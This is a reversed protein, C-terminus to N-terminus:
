PLAKESCLRNHLSWGFTNILGEHGRLLMWPFPRVSFSQFLSRRVRWRRSDWLLAITSWRSGSVSALWWDGCRALNVGLSGFLGGICTAWARSVPGTHLLVVKDREFKGDKSATEVDHGPVEAWSLRSAGRPLEAPSDPSDGTLVDWMGHARDVLLKLSKARNMSLILVGYPFLGDIIQKSWGIKFKDGVGRKPARLEWGEWAWHCSGAATEDSGTMTRVDSDWRNSSNVDVNGENLGDCDAFDVLCSGQFNVCCSQFWKQASIWTNMGTRGGPKKRGDRWVM